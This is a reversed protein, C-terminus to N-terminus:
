AVPVAIEPQASSSARRVKRRKSVKLRQALGAILGANIALMYQVNATVVGWEFMFHVCLIFLGVGLGLALDAGPADRNKFATRLALFIISALIALVGILGLYGTEAAVLFYSNHVHAGRNGTTWSVGARASYGDSNAVVVYNNPGVGFPHDSIMASAAREFAERERDSDVAFDVEAGGFRASLSSAAFPAAAAVLLFAMGAMGMKRGTSKKFVSLLIVVFVGVGALAISGRSAGFVLAAAGALMGILAWKVRYGALFMALSPLMVLHNFSGLLNQHGLSGGSQARGLMRDYGALGAQFTLGLILGTVVANRHKEDTAVLAIAQFVVFMRLLQWPYFAAATWLNALPVVTLVVVFYFVMQWKFPLSYNKHTRSLIIALAVVDLASLEVGRVYGPWNAWSIPAVTLHWPAYVFPLFGLLASVRHSSKENGRLWQTLLPLAIITLLLIVWKMKRANRELM